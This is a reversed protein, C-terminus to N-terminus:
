HSLTKMFAIINKIETKSLHLKEKPLTQNPVTIHLGHGGGKNYFDLVEELTKLVGNHMYPATENINRLTPTKFANEHLASKTFNFRGKDKDIQYPPTNSLPVGLVESETDTFDPPVVGNFLPMFHCTGCKAKGMFLNFGNKEDGSMQSSQGRMYLDFRSKFSILSRIYSALANSITYTNIKENQQAYAKEFMKYYTTDNNLVPISALLSGNMEEENHVVDSIQNELTSSRSDYFFKTQFAANLLTPTNRLLYSKGDIALATKLGDTFALEPKHCSGCHRTKSTSLIPDYFLKKGLAVREPTLQFRENPSFFNINFTATDFLSASYISIARRNNLENYGKTIRIKQWLEYLPNFRNKLFELRDFQNFHSDEPIAKICDNLMVNLQGLQAPNIEKTYFSIIKKISRLTAKCESLSNLVIPSDYGTIGLTSLRILSAQIADWVLEQRLKYDINKEQLLSAYVSIVKQVATSLQIFNIKNNTTFLIEEILQFGEPAIIKIYNDDFPKPLAHANMQKTEYPNFYDTFIALCKYSNRSQLFAKRLENLSLKRKVKQEFQLMDSHAAKLLGKYYTEITDDINAKFSINVLGGIILVICILIKIKKKMKATHVIDYNYKKKLTNRRLDYNQKVFSHM